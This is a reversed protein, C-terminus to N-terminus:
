PKLPDVENGNSPIWKTVARPSGSLAGHHQEERMKAYFSSAVNCVKALARWLIKEEELSAWCELPEVVGPGLM